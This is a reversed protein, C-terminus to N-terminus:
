DSVLFPCFSDCALEPKCLFIWLHLLFNLLVWVASLFSGTPGAQLSVLAEGHFSVQPWDTEALVQPCPLPGPSLAPLPHM